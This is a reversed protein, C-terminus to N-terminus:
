DSLGSIRWNRKMLEAIRNARNEENKLSYIWRIIEKKEDTGLKEFAKKSTPELDLCDQLEEPIYMDEEDRYLVVKVKDGANKKIKKRIEARVPLFLEGNGMPMLHYQRIEFDDITGRVKIWGFHSHPDPKVGPLRGYTWGGKGPFKELLVTKNVLPKM